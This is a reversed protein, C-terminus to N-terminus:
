RREEKIRKAGSPWQFIDEEKRKEGTTRQATQTITKQEAKKLEKEKKEERMRQYRAENEDRRKAEKNLRLTASTTRGGDDQGKGLDSIKETAM